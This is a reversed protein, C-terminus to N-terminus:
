FATLSEQEHGHLIESWADGGFRTELLPGLPEILTKRRHRDWDVVVGDPLRTVSNLAIADVSDGNEATHATYTSPLSAPVSTVYVLCPKDGQQITAGDIHESAYKAGRYLPAPTRDAAGYEVLPQGIGGRKCVRDLDIDGDAIADAYERLQPFLRERATSDDVRLQSAFARQAQKTIPAVDSREAELGTISIGDCEGDDDNWTEWQIYRKKVGVAGHPPDQSPIFLRPAFSEIEIEMHAHEPAVNCTEQLYSEYGGENLRDVAEGVVTMADHRTAASPLAVATADTDGSCAYADEYGNDHCYALIADRSHQIIKRGTLTIAEALRWDYLRSSGHKTGYSVIGYVSNVTRKTAGYLPTGRYREKLELLDAVCSPLFGEHVDHALFYLKEYRPGDGEDCTWKVSPTEPDYIMKYQGDTYKRWPEGTQVHKVPRTDIYGWVCDGETYQSQKLESRTGVITEPSGNLTRINNPYLSALDAYVVNENMGATPTEVFAGLYNFVDPASGTPLRIGRERAQRLLFVDLLDKNYAVDDYTAGTVQQLSALVSDDTTM